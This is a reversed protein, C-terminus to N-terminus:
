GPFDVVTVRMFETGPNTGVRFYVVSSANLCALQVKITHTGVSLGTLWITNTGTFANCFGGAYPNSAEGLSYATAGDILVQTRFLNGAASNNTCLLCGLVSIGVVSGTSAVTFNQATMTDNVSVGFAQASWVDTSPTFELRKIPAGHTEIRRRELERELRKIRQLMGMTTTTDIM